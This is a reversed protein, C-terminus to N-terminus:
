CDKEGAAVCTPFHDAAIAIMAVREGNETVCKPDGTLTIMEPAPPQGEFKVIATITGATAADVSPGAPAAPPPTANGGCNLSIAVVLTSAALGFM